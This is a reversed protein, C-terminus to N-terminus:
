WNYRFYIQYKSYNFVELVDSSLLSVTHIKKAMRTLLLLCCSLIERWNSFEVAWLLIFAVGSFGCNSQCTYCLISFQEFDPLGRPSLEQCDLPNCKDTLRLLIWSNQNGYSLKNWLLHWPSSTLLTLLSFMLCLLNKKYQGNGAWLFKIHTVNNFPYIFVYIFLLM